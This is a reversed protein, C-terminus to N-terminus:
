WVVPIKGWGAVEVRGVLDNMLPLLTGQMLEFLKPDLLDIDATYVLKPSPAQGASSREGLSGLMKDSRIM